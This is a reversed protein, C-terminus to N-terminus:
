LRTDQRRRARLRDLHQRVAGLKCRWCVILLESVGAVKTPAEVFYGKLVWRGCRECHRVFRSIPALLDEAYFNLWKCMGVPSRPPAGPHDTM